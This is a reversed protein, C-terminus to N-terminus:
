QGSDDAFIPKVQDGDHLSTGANAIVLDGPGVGDQVEIDTDTFLGLRVHRTEVTNDRVVQVTAGGQTEYQVASRPISVGGCSHSANIAGSAFMGARVAPDSDLTLRVKGLQTTPDIEPMIARVPASVDHGNELLAHARQGVDIKPLQFAAIDAEIELKNGVIIRFLPGTGMPPPLPVAAAVAGIRATSKSVLGAAPATLTMTAPQQQQPAASAPASGSPQQQGGVATAPSGGGSSLHTLKVLAQGATVTDGEGVLVDSIEYGDLNFNVVAEARPVVVGTFRVVSDFCTNTAKVVIASVGTTQARSATATTDVGGVVAIFLSTVVAIRAARVTTDGRTSASAM